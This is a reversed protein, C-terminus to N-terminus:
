STGHGLLKREQVHTFNHCSFVQAPPRKGLLIAPQVGAVINEHSERVPVKRHTKSLKVFSRNASCKALATETIKQWTQCKKSHSSNINFVLSKTVICITILKLFISSLERWTFLGNNAHPLLERGETRCFIAGTAYHKYNKRFLKFQNVYHICWDCKTPNRMTPIHTPCYCLGSWSTM